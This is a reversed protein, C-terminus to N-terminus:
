LVISIISTIFSVSAFVIIVIDRASLKDRYPIKSILEKNNEQCENLFKLTSTKLTELNKNFIDTFKTALEKVKCQIAEQNTEVQKKLQNACDMYVENVKAAEEKNKELIKDFAKEPALKIEMEAKSIKDLEVEIKSTLGKIRDALTDINMNLKDSLEDVKRKLYNNESQLTINDNKISLINEREEFEKLAKEIMPIGSTISKFNERVLAKLQNSDEIVNKASQYLEDIGELSETLRLMASETKERFTTALVEFRRRDELQKQQEAKNNETMDQSEPLSGGNTNSHLNSNIIKDNLNNRNDAQKPEKDQNETVNQVPINGGNTNGQLNKNIDKNEQIGPTSHNEVIEM